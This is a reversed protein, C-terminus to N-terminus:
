WNVERTENDWKSNQNDAWECFMEIHEADRLILEISDYRKSTPNQGQHWPSVKCGDIAMKCTEVGYTDIAKDILKRRKPTLVAKPGRRGDKHLRVWHNFVDVVPDQPTDPIGITM